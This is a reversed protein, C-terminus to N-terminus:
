AATAACRAGKRFARAITSKSAQRPDAGPSGPAGGQRGRLGAGAAQGGAGAGRRRRRAGLADGRLGPAAGGRARAFPSFAKVDYDSAAFVHEGGLVEIGKGLQIVTRDVRLHRDHAHRRFTGDPVLRVRWERVGGATLGEALRRVAREHGSWPRAYLTVSVPGPLADLEHLLRALGSPQARGPELHGQLVYRDVVVVHRARAVLGAFKRAWAEQVPLGAPIGTHVEVRARHVAGARDACDFRCVETRNAHRVSVGPGRVGQRVAEEPTVCVLDAADSLAWRNHRLSMQWRKRLPMPLGQLAKFWARRAAEDTPLHLTGVLRWAEQLWLHANLAVPDAPDFAEFVERAVSGRKIISANRGHKM